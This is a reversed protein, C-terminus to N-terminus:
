REKTLIGSLSVQGSPFQESSFPKNSSQWNSPHWPGHIINSGDIQDSAVLTETMATLPLSLAPRAFNGRQKLIELQLSGPGASLSLRLHAPSSNVRSDAPRFLVGIGGGAEAGLQLRRVDAQRLHAPWGMVLPCAPNRLAQELAWLQDRPEECRVIFLHELAIGARELAPAYPTYPPNIWVVAQGAGTLQRLTPVMLRLEGIGPTALLIETLVGRPWGQGGLHQDLVAYGTAMGQRGPPAQVRGQWLHAQQKLQEILESM